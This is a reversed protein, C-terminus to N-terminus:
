CIFVDAETLPVCMNTATMVTTHIATFIIGLQLKSIKEMTDLKFQERRNLLWQLMDDPEKWDDRKEGQLRAEVVPTFFEKALKERKRLQRVEPTRHALLPRLLPRMNKVRRQAAMLEHTYQIGMELYKEDLYLDPGVFIRGSMKAVITTLLGYICVPTWDECSPM